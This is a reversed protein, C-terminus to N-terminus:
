RDEGARLVRVLDVRALLRALVLVVASIAVATAVATVVVTRWPLVLPLPPYPAQGSDDVTVLPLVASALAMGMLAGPLVAFLALSLQEAGLLASLSTARVGTARLLAFERRRERTSIVAHVTFAIVAFGPALDRVLELVRRLGSRYPDTQLAQATGATTTVAGLAPQARAAAATRASDTSSIWWFAPDQPLAGAWTLAGALRRQDAILHGQARGLGPLADVRGVVKAPLPEGPGVDLMTTAGVALHGERLAQADALVPLPAPDGAPGAVLRVQGGPKTPTAEEATGAGVAPSGRFGTSVTARLLDPGGPQQVSCVGPPGDYPYGGSDDGRCAGATADAAHETRDIWRQGGSPAAAWTDSTGRSGVRILELDLLAPRVNQQPLVDVATVTLPYARPHGGSLAVDLPVAVTHRAGDAPPLAASVTSDLGTADQVTLVIRPAATSGDSRLREDLLVATPRGPLAIGAPVEPATRPAPGAVTGVLTETSGGPLNATTRTVPAVATVGPLARYASGLVAAPYSDQKSSVARVDAGVTFAAQESALGGLCALATTAFASVSVALCMLAVPGANRAARRSLQWGALALVLGRSRRGLVDLLRSTLPLLRLLLLAAAGGVLAPVLVLVPDVAVGGGLGGGLLSRHRRLEVYGAVAVALLALDAGLRQAAAARSGRATRLRTTPLVPLLVAGAHVLLTVGVAAWAGTGRSGPHLLGAAYPAAVAAPVGTVAWEAVAGRLLRLTGSGRAQQLALEGRRHVTMQRASLMLTALALVALMVMPLYLSSRAAVTPVALADIAGPLGSSVTLDQLSPQNGGFVSVGTRSGTFARVRDRLGTLSGAGLRSYDPQVSWHATVTGNLVASGNLAAPPVVLLKQAATSGEGLDGAMAPWFGAPGAARFVGSIRLTMTREFADMLRLQSGPALRLRSALEQPVAADVPTTSGTGVRVSPLSTFAEAPADATGAPWHGAVLQGFAAAGQVAVPHLGAAGPGDPAGEAGDVGAVSVASTGLLGVYTRQPVGGFVRAAAARVGQDAAAMGDARYSANVSVQADTDAALRQVTESRVSSGALAAVTSLATACLLVTAAVAALVLGHRTSRRAAAPLRRRPRHSPDPRRRPSTLSATAVVHVGATDVM